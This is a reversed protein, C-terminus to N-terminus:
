FRRKYFALTTMNTFGTQNYRYSPVERHWQELELEGSCSLENVFENADKVYAMQRLMDFFPNNESFNFLLVTGEPCCEMVGLLLRLNKKTLGETTDLYLMGPNFRLSRIAHLLDDVIFHAGPHAARNGEYWESNSDVGYFQEPRIFAHSALTSLESEAQSQDNALTWYDKDSPLSVIPFDDDPIVVQGGWFSSYIRANLIWAMKKEIPAKTRYTTIRQRSM